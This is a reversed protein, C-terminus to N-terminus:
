DEVTAVTTLAAVARARDAARVLLYDTDFTSLAFVSVGAAALPATLSSLVGTVAFDITGAVRFAVFGREAAIGDPLAADACVISLEDATRTISSLAGTTAWAPLPADAALRAVAYLGDLARLRM